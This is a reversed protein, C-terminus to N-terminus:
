CLITEPYTPVPARVRCGFHGGPVRRKRVGPQAPDIFPPWRQSMGKYRPRHGRPPFAKGGVRSLGSRYVPNAPRHESSIYRRPQVDRFPSVRIRWPLSRVCIGGGCADPDGAKNAPSPGIKSGRTSATSGHGTAITSRAPPCM